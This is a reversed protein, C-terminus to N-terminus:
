LFLFPTFFYSFIPSISSTLSLPHFLYSFPTFHIFYSFIPSIFYSFPPSFHLLFLTFYTFYSFLPSIFLFQTSYLLLFPPSISLTPPIPHFLTLSAPHFLRLVGLFAFRCFHPSIWLIPCILRPPSLVTFLYIVRSFRFFSSFYFTM